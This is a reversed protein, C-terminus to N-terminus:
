ESGGGCPKVLGVIHPTLVLTISRNALAPPMGVSSHGVIIRELGPSDSVPERLSAVRDGRAEQVGRSRNIVCVSREGPHLAMSPCEDRSLMGTSHQKSDAKGLDVYSLSPKRRSAALRVLIM